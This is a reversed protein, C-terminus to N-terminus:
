RLSTEHPPPSIALRKMEGEAFDSLRAIEVVFNSSKEWMRLHENIVYAVFTRKLIM